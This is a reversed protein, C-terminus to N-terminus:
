GVKEIAPRVDNQVSDLGEQRDAQKNLMLALQLRDKVKLREFSAALHAKVTRETINLKRAIEKNTQGKAAELSVERERKTLQKLLKDVQEPNNGTLKKTSEILRQLLQQGLWLGGHSVVARIETLVEPASYAHAYGAVGLGLVKLSTEHNPANDLVVIRALQFHEKILAVAQSLDIRAAENIHVWFMMPHQSDHQADEAAVSKSGNIATLDAIRHILKSDPFAQKWSTIPQRSPSIFIDQM